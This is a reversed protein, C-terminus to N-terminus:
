IQWRGPKQLNSLHAELVFGAMLDFAFSMRLISSSNVQLWWVELSLVTSSPAGCEQRQKQKEPWPPNPLSPSARADGWAAHGALQCTAEQLMEPTNCGRTPERIHCNRVLTARVSM